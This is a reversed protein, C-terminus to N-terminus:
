NGKLVEETTTFIVGSDKMEQIAKEEDGPNVNVARCADLILYTKYGRKRSDLAAAKVCYDTALGCIYVEEIDYFEFTQTLNEKTFIYGDFPSYGDEDSKTGKM